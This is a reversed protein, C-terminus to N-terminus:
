RTAGHHFEASHYSVNDGKYLLMYGKIHSYKADVLYYKNGLPRPFNLEPRHLAEGFIRNDHATGEWGAWAFTFCMNFDVIVLINQTSYGKRDIYPIEQGQPLRAKIHTGDLEGICDKFFPLYRKNCSKHFKVGDNYNPHPRIM